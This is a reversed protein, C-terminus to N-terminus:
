ADAWLPIRYFTGDIDVTDGRFRFDAFEENYLSTAM